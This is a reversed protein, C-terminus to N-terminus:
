LVIEAEWKIWGDADAEVIRWDKLSSVQVKGAFVRHEKTERNVLYKM